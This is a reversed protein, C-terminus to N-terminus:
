KETCGLWKIGTKRDYETATKRCHCDSIVRHGGGGVALYRPLWEAATRAVLARDEARGGVRGGRSGVQFACPQGLGHTLELARIPIKPQVAPGVQPNQTLGAFKIVKGRARSVATALGTLAATLHLPHLEGLRPGNLAWRWRCTNMYVCPWLQSQARASPPPCKFERHGMALSAPHNSCRPM